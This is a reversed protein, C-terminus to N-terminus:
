DMISHCWDGIVVLVSVMDIESTFSGGTTTQGGVTLQYMSLKM